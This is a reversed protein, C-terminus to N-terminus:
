IVIELIINGNIVDDICRKYERKKYNRWAKQIVRASAIQPYNLEKISYLIQPYYANGNKMYCYGLFEVVIQRIPRDLVMQALYFDVNRYNKIKVCYRELPTHHIYYLDDLPAYIKNKDTIKITSLLIGRGEIEITDGIENNPFYLGVLLDNVIINSDNTCKETYYTYPLFAHEYNENDKYKKTKLTYGYTSNYKNKYIFLSHLLSLEFGSYGKFERKAFFKDRDVHLLFHKTYQYIKALADNM